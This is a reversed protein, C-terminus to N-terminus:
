QVNSKTFTLRIANEKGFSSMFTSRSLSFHHFSSESKQVYNFKHDVLDNVLCKQGFCKCWLYKSSINKGGRNSQRCHKSYVDLKRWRHNLFQLRKWRPCLASSNKKILMLGLLPLKRFTAKFGGQYICKLLKWIAKGTANHDASTCFM